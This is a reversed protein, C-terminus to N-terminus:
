ESSEIMYFARAGVSKGMLKDNTHRWISPFSNLFHPLASLDLPVYLSSVSTGLTDAKAFRNTISYVRRENSIKRSEQKM